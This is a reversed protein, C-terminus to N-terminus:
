QLGKQLAPSQLQGELTPPQENHVVLYEVTERTALPSVDARWDREEEQRCVSTKQRDRYVQVLLQVPAGGEQWGVRGVEPVSNSGAKLKVELYEKWKKVGIKELNGIM